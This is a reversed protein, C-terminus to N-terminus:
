KKIIFSIDTPNIELAKTLNKSLQYNQKVLSDIIIMLIQEWEIGGQRYMELAYSVTTNDKSLDEITQKNVM